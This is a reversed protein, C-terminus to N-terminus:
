SDILLHFDKALLDLIALLDRLPEGLPEEYTRVFQRYQVLIIITIM